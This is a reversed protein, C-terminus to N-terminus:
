ATAGATAEAGLTLGYRSRIAEYEPQLRERDQATLLLPDPGWHHVAIDTTWPEDATLAAEKLIGNLVRTSGYCDLGNTLAWERPAYRAADQIFARLQEALDRHRLLRGTRENIFGRSGIVADEFLAVPTNALMSETVAVCSGEQRSLVVSTKARALVRCVERHPLSELLEFRDAVGYQRAEAMLGAATRGPM